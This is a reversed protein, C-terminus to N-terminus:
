YARPKSMAQSLVIVPILGALVITLSPLALESLREDAALQYTAVALTDFNFPRLLLTAPLEKMVDVFVFLGATLLSRKLLPLHVQMMTQWQSAGLLAATGDMAPTIRALGTEVSQLSSSLFRILYAYILVWVTTSMIWASEILGLLSLIGVALVAGPLAYGLGLLRNVWQMAASKSARAFYALFLACAVSILATVSALWISNSLWATYRADVTIGQEWQLQLLGLVPLIFSCLVTLGCISFVFFAKKGTLKKALTARPVSGTTAYRQRARNHQEIYFILLVFALLGLSLQVAALRDGFSLWARFIGTAFTQVGFYSVAGYDSLVEMLALAM